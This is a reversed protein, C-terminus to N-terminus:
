CSLAAAPKNWKWSFLQGIICRPCFLISLLNKFREKRVMRALKKMNICAYTLGVKMEMKAKGIMQTYRMGHYEKASGFLREITEKRQDYLEKMGLTCRIEECQEMYDEWIHRLIIKQHNKSLTCRCLDPCEVCDQPASKYERYGDKNTTSYRLFEDHPCLYIDYDEDYM